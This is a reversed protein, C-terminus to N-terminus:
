KKINERPTATERNSENLDKAATRVDKHNNKLTLPLNAFAHSHAFITVPWTGASSGAGVFAQGHAITTETEQFEKPATVHQVFMEGEVHLGGGIIVNKNVGLNTEVLIQKQRKNRMRIINGSINIVDGDINIENDSGINIQEGTMNTISGTINTPGYSKLNLGGAGVLVNYRNSVNLTSSGGPLDQVHVYEVLSTGEKDQYVVETDVVVNSSTLKGIPDFRYSGFDNMEM